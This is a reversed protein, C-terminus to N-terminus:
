FILITDELMYACLNRNRDYVLILTVATHEFLFTVKVSFYAFVTRRFFISRHDYVKKKDSGTFNPSIRATRLNKAENTRVTVKNHLIFLYLNTRARNFSM